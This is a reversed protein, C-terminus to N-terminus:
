VVFSKHRGRVGLIGEVVTAKQEGPAVRSRSEDSGRSKRRSTISELGKRLEVKYDNRPPCSDSVTIEPVSCM